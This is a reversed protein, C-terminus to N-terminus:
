LVNWWLARQTAVRDIERSSGSPSRILNKGRSLLDSNCLGSAIDLPLDNNQPNEVLNTV